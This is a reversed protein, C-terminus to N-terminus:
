SATRAVFLTHSGQEDSTLIELERVRLANAPHPIAFISSRRVDFPLESWDISSKKHHAGLKYIVPKSAAPMDSIVVHRTGKMEPISRSTSRLALTFRDESVAGILDMPFLNGDHAGAVSVLVVPRPCIYFIMLREISEPTMGDTEHPRRRVARGHLWANWARYPWATCRHSGDIVDFITLSVGTDLRRTTHFRLNLQGVTKRTAVDVFSLLAEGNAREPIPESLGVAVRFP